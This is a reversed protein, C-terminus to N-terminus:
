LGSDRILFLKLIRNTELGGRRFYTFRMELVFM